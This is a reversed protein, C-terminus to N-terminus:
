PCLADVKVRLARALKAATDLRPFKNQGGELKRIIQPHVGSKEGLEEPTLNRRERAARLLTQFTTESM